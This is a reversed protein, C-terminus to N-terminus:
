ERRPSRRTATVEHACHEKRRHTECLDAANYLVGISKEVRLTEGLEIEAERWDRVFETSSM